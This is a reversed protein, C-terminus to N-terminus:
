GVISNFRSFISLSEANNATLYNTMFTRYGWEVRSVPSKVNLQM